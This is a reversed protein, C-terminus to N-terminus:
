SRSTLNYRLIDWYMRLRQAFGAIFGRKEEKMVHSAGPLPIRKMAIGKKSLHDNLAHEIGFKTDWRDFDDLLRRELCRQGSILPAIRQAFDTAGRGGKFIGITAKESGSLVPEVLAKIHETTLRVLDADLFCVIDSQCERLGREIARAKGANTQTVVRVGAVAAAREATADRSGDDICVVAEFVGCERAVSLVDAVTREENYAPVILDAKYM